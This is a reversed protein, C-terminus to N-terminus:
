AAKVPQAFSFCTTDAAQIATLLMAPAGDADFHLEPRERRGFNRTSGDDLTVNLTFAHAGTPSVAWSTGAEDAFGHYGFQQNHWLM